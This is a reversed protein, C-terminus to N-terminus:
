SCPVDLIFGEQVAQKMSYIHFAERQGHKNLRGFLQLTTPKPTATFAFMAVNAQKGTRAVEDAIIDELDAAEELIEGESLVRTVAAMNKGATSSHAEDIIVAFKKNTMDSVNGVVYPFKWLNGIGISFAAMSLIFGMRSGFGRKNDM